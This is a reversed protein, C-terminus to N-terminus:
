AAERLKGARKRAASEARRRRECERCARGYRGNKLRYARTNEPTFWHGWKCRKKRGNIATPSTSRANNAAPTAPLLHAPNVCLRHLCTAPPCSYDGPHCLHDLQLGESIPGVTLEYAVRHAMRNTEDIWFQGYGTERCPADTWLWCPGLDPRSGPVPGDKDVKPWFRDAPPMGRMRILPDGYKWWRKYHESCMGWGMVPKGCPGGGQDVVCTTKPRSKVPPLPVGSRRRRYYHMKCLGRACVSRECGEEDACTRKSM